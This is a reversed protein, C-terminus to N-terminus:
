DQKFIITKPRINSVKSSVLKKDNFNFIIEESSLKKDKQNVDAQGTFIIKDPKKTTKDRILLAKNSEGSTDEYTLKVKNKKSTATGEETEHNLYLEDTNLHITSQNERSQTSYPWIISEVSESATVDKTNIDFNFIFAKTLHNKQKLTAPENISDFIAKVPKKDKYIIKAKDSIVETDQYNTKINGTAKAGEGEWSLEQYNAEILLESKNKDTLKSKTNGEAIILKTNLYITIKDASLERDSLHLKSNGIFVAKEAKGQLDNTIIAKPALVTANKYTVIINGSIAIEQETAELSDAHNIEFDQSNSDQINFLNFTFIILCLLLKNKM